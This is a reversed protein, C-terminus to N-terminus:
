NTVAEEAAPGLKELENELNSGPILKRFIYSGNRGM